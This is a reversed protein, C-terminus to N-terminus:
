ARVSAAVAAAVAFGWWWGFQRWAAVWSHVDPDASEFPRFAEWPTFMLALVVALAGAIGAAVRSRAFLGVAAALGLLLLGAYGIMLAYSEAAEAPGAMGFLPVM